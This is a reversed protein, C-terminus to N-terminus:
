AVRLYFGSGIKNSYSPDSGGSSGRSFLITGGALLGNSTYSESGTQTIVIYSGGSPLRVETKGGADATAKFPKMQGVSISQLVYYQKTLWGSAETGVTTTANSSSATIGSSSSIKNDVETKTYANTIGYGALTTSKKAFNQSNIWSKIKSWMETMGTKDLYKKNAM